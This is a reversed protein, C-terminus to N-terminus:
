NRKGVKRFYLNKMRNFSFKCGEIRHQDDRAFDVKGNWGAMIFVDRSDPTFEIDKLYSHQAILKGNIIRIEYITELEDSYYRGTYQNLDVKLRDFAAAEVTKIEENAPSMAAPQIEAQVKVPKLYIDAIQRAVPRSYIDSANALVIVVLDDEPFISMHAKFGGEAGSHGIDRHGKHNAIMLGLGNETLSGNNLKGPTSMKEVVGADAGPKLLHLAWRGLNGVTTVIGTSGVLDNVVYLKKPGDAGPEYSDAAGPILKGADDQFVTVTMKLPKFIHEKVFSVYSMGSVREVVTALLVYGSNSYSYEDGPLFNLDQQRSMLKFFPEKSHIEYGSMAHLSEYTRIGSTHQLLHRLSIKHRFDPVEPLYKRIDDDLNLKGQKELLLISYSTFTKTVSAIHFMTSPTNPIQNELNAMGYGKEYLMKGGKFIAVSAAPSQRNDWPLFIEDIKQGATVAKPRVVKLTLEYSASPGNTGLGEIEVLYDGKELSRLMVYEPGNIGNPSDTEELKSHKPDYTNIKVDAGKQMVQLFAFQSADLKIKYLHKQGEEIKASLITGKTIFGKQEQAFIQMLGMLFALVTLIAKRM